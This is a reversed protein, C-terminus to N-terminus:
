FRESRKPFQFKGFFKTRTSFFIVSFWSFYYFLIYCSILVIFSLYMARLFTVFHCIFRAFISSSYEYAYHWLYIKSANIQYIKHFYLTASYRLTFIITHLHVLDLSLQGERYEDHAQHIRYAQNWSFNCSLRFVFLSRVARLHRVFFFVQYIEMRLFLLMGQTASATILTTVILYCTAYYAAMFDVLDFTVSYNFSESTLRILQM